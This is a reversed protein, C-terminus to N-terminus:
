IETDEIVDAPTPNIFGNLPGDLECLYELEGTVQEIATEPTDAWTYLKITVCYQKNDM